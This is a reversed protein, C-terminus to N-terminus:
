SEFGIKLSTSSLPRQNFKVSVSSIGEPQDQGEGECPREFKLSVDANVPKNYSRPDFNLRLKKSECDHLFEELIANGHVSDGASGIM